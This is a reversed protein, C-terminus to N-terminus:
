GREGFARWGDPLVCNAPAGAFMPAIDRDNYGALGCGIRTVHFVYTPHEHAFTLFRQV